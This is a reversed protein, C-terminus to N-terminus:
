RLEQLCQGCRLEMLQWPSGQAAMFRALGRHADDLRSWADLYARLAPGVTAALPLAEIAASRREVIDLFTREVDLLAEGVASSLETWQGHEKNEVM